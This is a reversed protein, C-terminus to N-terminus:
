ARLADGIAAAALVVAMALGVGYSADMAPLAAVRKCLPSWAGMAYTTDMAKQQVSRWVVSPLEEETCRSIGLFPSALIGLLGVLLFAAVAIVAGYEGDVVADIAADLMTAGRWSSSSRASVASSKRGDFRLTAYGDHVISPMRSKWMGLTALSERRQRAKEPSPPGDNHKDTDDHFFSVVRKPIDPENCEDQVLVSSLEGSSSSSRLISKGPCPQAKCTCSQSKSCKPPKGVRRFRRVNERVSSRLRRLRFADFARVAVGCLQQSHNIHKEASGDELVPTVIPASLETRHAVDCLSM